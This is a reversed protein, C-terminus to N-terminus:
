PLLPNFVVRDLPQLIHTTHPPFALVHIDQQKALELMDLVEHSHHSDLILLQPREDGCHPLFVEKFWQVGIEDNMWGNEQFAWITGEPSDQIAFSHVSRNTKGKVVCMPPMASGAANVCVLTTISDKSPSCRAILSKVGKPALFKSANPCFQLGTEDCNWIQSPKDQLGMRSITDQLDDFYNNIVDRKMM